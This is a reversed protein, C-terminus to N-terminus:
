DWIVRLRNYSTFRTDGSVIALDEALAQAILMRDFPDKHDARFPLKSLEDLHSFRIPLLSAGMSTMAAEAWAPTLELTPKM